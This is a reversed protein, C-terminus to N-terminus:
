KVALPVNIECYPESGGRDMPTFVLTWDNKDTTDANFVLDLTWYAPLKLTKAMNINGKIRNAIMTVAFNLPYETRTGDEATHIATFSTRDLGQMPKEALYLIKVTMFLYQDEATRGATQKGLTAQSSVEIFIDNKCDFIGDNPEDLLIPDTKQQAFTPVTFLLIFTLCILITITRKTM